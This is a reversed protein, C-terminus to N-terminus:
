VEAQPHRNRQTSIKPLDLLLQDIISDKRRIEKELNKVHIKSNENSMTIPKECKNKLTTLEKQFRMNIYRATESIIENKLDDIETREFTRFTKSTQEVINFTRCQDM